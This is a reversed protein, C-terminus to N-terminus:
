FTYKEHSDKKLTLNKIKKRLKQSLDLPILEIRIERMWDKLDPNGASFSM